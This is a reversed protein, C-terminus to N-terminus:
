LFKQYLVQLGSSIHGGLAGVLNCTSMRRWFGKGNAQNDQIEEDSGLRSLGSRQAWQIILSKSADWDRRAGKGFARYAGKQPCRLVREVVDYELRVEGDIKLKILEVRGTLIAQFESAFISIEWLAKCMFTLFKVLPKPRMSFRQSLDLMLDHENAADADDLRLTFDKPIDKATLVDIEITQITIGQDKLFRTGVIGPPGFELFDRLFSKLALATTLCPGDGNRSGRTRNFFPGLFRITAAVTNIHRSYTPLFTWTPLLPGGNVLTLDLTYSLRPYVRAISASTESHLRRCTLLLGQCNPRYAASNRDRIWGMSECFDRDATKKFEECRIDIESRGPPDRKSSIVLDIIM